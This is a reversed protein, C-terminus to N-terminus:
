GAMAQKIAENLQVDTFPKTLIAKAGVLQASELNFESSVMRRGGSMAIIPLKDNLESLQIITQIGDTNPMIIDTIVLDPHHLKYSQLAELGDHAVTVIHKSSKLMITLLNCLQPDDDVILIHAM